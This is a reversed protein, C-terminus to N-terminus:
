RLTPSRRRGSPSRTSIATSRAKRPRATESPAASDSGDVYFRLSVGDYAYCVFDWTAPAVPPTPAFYCPHGWHDVFPVNPPTGPCTGGSPAGSFISFFDGQGTAGGWFIPEGLGATPNGRSWACLTRAGSLTGAGSVVRMSSTAGDFHMAGDVRGAAPTLNTGLADFGHGTHDGTDQDLPYHALLGQTPIGCTPKVAIDDIGVVDFPAAVDKPADTAVDVSADDAAGGEADELIQGGCAVAVLLLAVGRRM